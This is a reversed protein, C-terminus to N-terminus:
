LNLEKSTRMVVFFRSRDLSRWKLQIRTFSFFFDKWFHKWRKSVNREHKQSSQFVQLLSFLNEKKCYIFFYKPQMKQLCISLYPISSPKSVKETKMHELGIQDRSTTARTKKKQPFLGPFALSPSRRRNEEEPLMVSEHRKRSPEM